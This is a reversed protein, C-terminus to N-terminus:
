DFLLSSHRSLSVPRMKDCLMSLYFRQASTTTLRILARFLVPSLLVRTRRRDGDMVTTADSLVRRECVANVNEREYAILQTCVTYADLVRPSPCHLRAFLRLIIRERCVFSRAGTRM